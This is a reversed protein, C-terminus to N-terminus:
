TVTAPWCGYRPGGRRSNFGRTPRHRARLMLTVGTHRMTHHSVDDLGVAEMARSSAIAATQQTPPSGAEGEDSCPGAAVIAAGPAPRIPTRRSAAVSHSGGARAPSRWLMTGLHERAAAAGRQCRTCLVRPRGPVVLAVDAPRLEACATFSGCRTSASVGSDDVRYPKVTRMPSLVLRGWDVARSFCGRVINLERNVTSPPCGERARREVARYSVAVGGRRGIALRRWSRLRAGSKRTPPSANEDHPPTGAKFHESLRIPKLRRLGDHGELVGMAASRAIREALVPQCIEHECPVSSPHVQLSVLVSACRTRPRVSVAQVSEHRNTRRSRPWQTRRSFAISNRNRSAPSVGSKLTGLRKASLWNRLTGPQIKLYASAEEIDLLPSVPM